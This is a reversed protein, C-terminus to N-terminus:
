KRYCFVASVWGESVTVGRVGGMWGHGGAHEAVEAAREDALQAGDLLARSAYHQRVLDARGGAEAFRRGGLRNAEPIRALTARGAGNLAHVRTGVPARVGRDHQVVIRAAHNHHRRAHGIRLRVICVGVVQDSQAARVAHEDLLLLHHRLPIHQHNRLQADLAHALRVHLLRQIRALRLSEIRIRTLTPTYQLTAYFSCNIKKQRM